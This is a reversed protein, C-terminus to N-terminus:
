KISHLYGLLRYEAMKSELKNRKKKPVHIMYLSQIRFTKLHSIDPKLRAWSEYLTNIVATSVRVGIAWNVADKERDKEFPCTFPDSLNSYM